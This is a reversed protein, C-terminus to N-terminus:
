LQTELRGQVESLTSFTRANEVHGRSMWVTQMGISKAGEIDASLNDGIMLCHEPLVDLRECALQFIRADPKRIGLEGSILITKFHHQLGAKQIAARQIDQTGNTILTLPINKSLLYELLETAGPLLEIYSAYRKATEQCYSEFDEPLKRRLSVFTKQCAEPFSSCSKDYQLYTTIFEDYLHEPIGLRHASEKMHDFFDGTFHALTGDFDFCIAGIM